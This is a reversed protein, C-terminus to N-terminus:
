IPHESAVENFKLQITLKDHLAAHKRTLWYIELFDILSPYYNVHKTRTIVSKATNIVIQKSIFFYSNTQM